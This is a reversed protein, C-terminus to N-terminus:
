VIYVKINKERLIDRWEPSINEDTILVDIDDLEGFYSARVFGFKSSDALLIKVLSSRLAAQKNAIESHYACTLGLKEHIGSASLFYKNARFHRITELGENSSFSTTASNLQGGVLTLDVHSKNLLESFINFNYCLASFCLDESIHCALRITTTGTDIIVSDNPEILTSAFQGIRDKELYNKVTESQFNYKEKLRPGQEALTFTGSRAGRAVLNSTQLMSLDRRITMESFGLRESLQKATLFKEEEFLSLMQNVREQKKGM